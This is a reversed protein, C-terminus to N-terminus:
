REARRMKCRECLPVRPKPSHLWITWECDICDISYRPEVTPTLTV